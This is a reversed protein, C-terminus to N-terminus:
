DQISIKISLFRGSWPFVIEWLVPVHSNIHHPTIAFHELHSSFINIPALPGRLLIFPSLLLCIHTHRALFLFTLKIWSIITFCLLKEAKSLVNWQLTFFLDESCLVIGPVYQCEPFFTSHILLHHCPPYPSIMENYYMLCNRYFKSIDCM